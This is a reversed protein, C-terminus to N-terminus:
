AALTALPVVGLILLAQRLKGFETFLLLLMLGLVLGIVLTFRRQAREQNEFIGGYELHYKAPDFHVTQAIKAKVEDLYSAMDRDALDIRVTLNRHKNERTITGEGTHQTIKAVQSLPVQAGSSTTLPLNGIAEPDFRSTLPFRVSVDYVRDEVYVQTVAAGGVGNQILNTIDSINIGYRAAAARDAEIEIQPLPPEQFISAEATGRTNRLLDVIENAIRRDEAFDDGVVRIVLASHAGGVMDFVMDSIPQNIGINIGPMEHLRANLKRLFDAKTEGAPWTDYPTLGVPAEIHSPTWADVAADERGLQTMIYVEPFERVARRLESAM